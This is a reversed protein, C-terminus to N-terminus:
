CRWTWHSIRKTNCWCRKSILEILSHRNTHTYRQISSCNRISKFNYKFPACYNRRVITELIGSERCVCMNFISNMWVYKSRRVWVLFFVLLLILSSYFIDAVVPVIPIGSKNLVNKNQSQDNELSYLCQFFSTHCWIMYCKVDFEMMMEVDGVGYGFTDHM